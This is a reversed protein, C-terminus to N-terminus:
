FASVYGVVGLAIFLLVLSVAMIWYPGMQPTTLLASIHGIGAKDEWKAVILGQTDQAYEGLLWLSTYLSFIGIILSVWYILVRLFDSELTGPVVTMIAAYVGTIGISVEIMSPDTVLLRVQSSSFHKSKFENLKSLRICWRGDKLKEGDLVKARILVRVQSQFLGLEQAVQETGLCPDSQNQMYVELSM